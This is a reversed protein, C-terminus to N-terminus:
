NDSNWPCVSGTGAIEDATWDMGAVPLRAAVTRRPIGRMIHLGIRLGLRHVRDALPGFEAGDAAPPFRNPAPMQRGHDDLVLRTGYCDRSNWGM